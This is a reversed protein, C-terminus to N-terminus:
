YLTGVLPLSRALIAIGGILEGKGNFAALRVPRWDGGDAKVLGWEWAQLADGYINDGVFENWAQRDTEVLERIQM